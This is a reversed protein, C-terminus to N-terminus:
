LGYPRTLDGFAEIPLLAEQDVAREACARALTEVVPDDCRPYRHGTKDFLSSYPHSLERKTARLAMEEYIKPLQITPIARRLTEFIRLGELDLDGWFFAPRSELLYPLDKPREGAAACALVAGDKIRDGINEITLGYGFACLTLNEEIFTTQILSSFVSPNEVLLIARPDRPGATVAFLPRPQVGAPEAAPFRDIVKSSGMVRRASFIYRDEGPVVPQERVKMLGSVLAALDEDALERGEPAPRLADDPASGAM